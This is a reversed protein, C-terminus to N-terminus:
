GEYILSEPYRDIWQRLTTREFPFDELPLATSSQGYRTGDLLFVLQYNRDMGGVHLDISGTGPPLTLVRSQDVMECFTVSIPRGDVEFNIIHKEPVIMAQRSFAYAKDGVVVGIVEDSDSLTTSMATTFRPDVIGPVDMVIQLPEHHEGTFPQDAPPIYSLGDDDSPPRPAVAPAAPPDSVVILVYGSYGVASVTIVICAFAAIREWLLLKCHPM